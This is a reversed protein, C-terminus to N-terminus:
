DVIQLEFHLVCLRPSSRLLNVLQLESITAYASTGGLLRLEVLGRYASSTWPAYVQDLRLVIISGLVDELREEPLDIDVWNPGITTWTAVENSSSRARFFLPLIPSYRDDVRISLQTLNEAVCTSICLSLSSSHTKLLNDSRSILELSKLRPTISTLFPVPDAQDDRRRNFRDILHLNLPLQGARSLFSMARSGPITTWTAVENSSSRARFFLPLIPSYRDDVRISLQTLNEAVCTSLRLSLSSSHTKLLNDSRSILELSKLRPTISTLFPVPDAQDDRRRNFRDILHLNLPLQGARSLFSMARSGPICWAPMDIHSWLSRSHIAVQRWHSCVHSLVDPYCLVPSKAERRNVMRCCPANFVVTWMISALVESPLKHIPSPPIARQNTSISAVTSQTESPTVLLSGNAVHNLEEHNLSM